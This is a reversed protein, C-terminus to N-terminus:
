RVNVRIASKVKSPDIEVHVISHEFRHTSERRRRESRDNSTSAIPQHEDITQLRSKSGSAAELLKTDAERHFSKMLASYRKVQWRLQAALTTNGQAKAWKREEKFRRRESDALSARARLAAVQRDLPSMSARPGILESESDVSTIDSTTRRSRAKSSPKDAHRSSRIRTQASDKTSHTKKRKDKDLKPNDVVSSLFDTGIAGLAVGVLTIGFKLADSMFTYDVFLKALIGLAVPMSLVHNKVTCWLVGQWLGAMLFDRVTQEESRSLFDMLLRASLGILLAPAIYITM